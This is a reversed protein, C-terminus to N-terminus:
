ERCYSRFESALYFSGTCLVPLDKKQSIDLTQRIAERTDKVLTTKDSLFASYAKEPNSIRFTGPSTIIIRSFRPLLM